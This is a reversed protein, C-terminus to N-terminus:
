KTATLVLEDGRMRAADGGLIQAWQRRWGALRDAWTGRDNWRHWGQRQVHRAAVEGAPVGHVTTTVQCRQFGVRQALKTLAEGTFLVLHRPPELGRWASGFRDHNASRVNPTVAVLTGGPVLLRHMERLFSEPEHVHEMVHSSTVADFSSAAFGCDELPGQRVNLGRAKAVAVAKPDVDQGEVRWGVQALVQLAFGDGCGVDLLAMGAAPPPLHRLLLELHLGITSVADVLPALARGVMAPVVGVTRRYRGALFLQGMLGWAQLFAKEVLPPRQAHTYYTDYALGIDEPSPCPDLWLCACSEDPCARM